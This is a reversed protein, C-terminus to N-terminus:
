PAPTQTRRAAERKSVAILAEYVERLGDSSLPGGNLRGLDEVLSEERTRDVLPYGHSLKYAHLEAVLEIRRNIAALIRRDEETIRERFGAVVPDQGQEM